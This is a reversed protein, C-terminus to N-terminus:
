KAATLSPLCARVLVAILAVAGGIVAPVPSDILSAVWLGGAIMVVSCTLVTETLNADAQQLM